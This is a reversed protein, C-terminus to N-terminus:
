IEKEREEGATLLPGFIRELALNFQEKLKKRHKVLDLKGERNYYYVKIFM